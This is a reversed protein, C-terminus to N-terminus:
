RQVVVRVEAGPNDLKAGQEYHDVIAPVITRAWEIWADSISYRYQVIFTKKAM